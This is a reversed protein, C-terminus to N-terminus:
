PQGTHREVASALSFAPVRTGRHFKEQAATMRYDKTIKGGVGANVVTANVWVRKGSDLRRIHGRRLHERPSRHSGCIGGGSNRAHNEIMLVHYSDFPLAAKIRGLRKPDSRVTSVNACALANVFSLVIKAWTLYADRSEVRAKSVHVVFSTHAPDSRNLGGTLPITCDDDAYWVGDAIGMMVPLIRIEGDHERCFLVVKSVGMEREVPFELAVLPHPLRIPISDDIARFEEDELLVGGHPLLFKQSAACLDAVHLLKFREPTSLSPVGLKSRSQAVIQRCYNLHQM